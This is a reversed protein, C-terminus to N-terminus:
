PWDCLMEQDRGAETVVDDETGRIGQRKRVFIGAIVGSGDAYDM